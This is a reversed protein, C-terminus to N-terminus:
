SAYFGYDANSGRLVLNVTESAREDLAKKKKLCELIFDKDRDFYIRKINKKIKKAIRM